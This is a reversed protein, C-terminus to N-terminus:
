AKYSKAFKRLIHQEVTIAHADDSGDLPRLLTDMNGSFFFPVSYRHNNSHNLTAWRGSLVM